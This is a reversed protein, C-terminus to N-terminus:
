AAVEADVPRQRRPDDDHAVQERERRHRAQRVLARLRRPGDGDGLPAADREEARARAVVAVRPAVGDGVLERVERDRAGRAVLRREPELLADRLALLDAPAVRATRRGGRARVGDDCRPSSSSGRGAARCAPAWCRSAASRRRPSPPTRRPSSSRGSSRARRWPVVRQRLQQESSRPRCPARVRREVGRAPRVELRPVRPPPRVDGDRGRSGSGPARRGRRRARPRRSAARGARGSAGRRAAAPARGRRRPRSPARGCRAPRSGPRRRPTPAPSPRDWRASAARARARPPRAAPPPRAARPPGWAPGRTTRDRTPSGPGTPAGAAAVLRRAVADKMSATAASGNSASAAQSVRSGAAPGASGALCAGRRRRGVGAAHAQTRLVSELPRASPGPRGSRRLFVRSQGAGLPAPLMNQPRDFRRSGDASAQDPRSASTPAAPSVRGM